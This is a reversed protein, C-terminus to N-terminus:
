AGHGARGQRATVMLRDEYEPDSLLEIPARGGLDARPRHFWAVTGRPTWARRLIALLRALLLLRSSPHGGDRALRQLTKVSTGALEAVEGQRIGPLWEIIRRVVAQGDEEAVGLSEDLADRLIHRIQEFRLLFGDVADLPRAEDIEDAETLADIVTRRIEDAAEPPFSLPLSSNVQRALRHATEKFRKLFDPDLSADGDRGARDLEAVFRDKLEEIRFELTRIQDRDAIGTGRAMDEIETGETTMMDCHLSLIAVDASPHRRRKPAPSLGGSGDASGRGAERRERRVAALSSVQSL